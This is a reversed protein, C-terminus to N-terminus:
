LRFLTKLLKRVQPRFHRKRTAPPAFPSFLDGNELIDAYTHVCGLDAQRNDGAGKSHLGLMKQYFDGHKQGPNM